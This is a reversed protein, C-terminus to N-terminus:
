RPSDPRDAEEQHRGQQPARSEPTPLHSAFWSAALQAVQELAGAESFLHTAGRVVKLLNPGPMAQLARRNLELVPVDSGGVILLTPVHVQGLVEQALDPRGGRSVIACIVDQRPAAAILAAAAGTSSGFYGLPIRSPIMSGGEGVECVWDTVAGLRRALLQVDFRLRGHLADREEEAPSLLDFLLTGIGYEQLTEAVFRNRPSKRSSGSGHAFLVLGLAHEPLVLDGTLDVEGASLPISQDSRIM